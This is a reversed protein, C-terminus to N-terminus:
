IIRSPSLSVHTHVVQRLDNGPLTVHM